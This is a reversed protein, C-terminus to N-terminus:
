VQLKQKKQSSCKSTKPKYEEQVHLNAKSLLTSQVMLEDATMTTPDLEQISLISDLDIAEASEVKVKSLDSDTLHLGSSQSTDGAKNQSILAGLKQRSLEQQCKEENHERFNIKRRFGKGCKDCKFPYYNTHTWRHYVMASHNVFMKKCIDCEVNKEGTHKKFHSKLASKLGFRMHCLHCKFPKLQTHRTMHDRVHSPNRFRQGCVKCAYPRRDEHIWMHKRFDGRSM